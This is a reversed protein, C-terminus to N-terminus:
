VVEKFYLCVKMFCCANGLIMKTKQQLISIRFTKQLYLFASSSIVIQKNGLLMHHLTREIVKCIGRGKMEGQYRDM